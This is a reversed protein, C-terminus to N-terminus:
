DVLLGCSYWGLGCVSFCIWWLCRLELSLAFMVLVMICVILDTLGLDCVVGGLSLVLLVVYLGGILFLLRLLSGLM